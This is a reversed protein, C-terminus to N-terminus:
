QQLGLYYAIAGIALVILVVWVWSSHRESPLPAGPGSRVMAELSPPPPEMRPLKVSDLAEDPPPPLDPSRRRPNDPLESV